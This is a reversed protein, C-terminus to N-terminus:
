KGPESPSVPLTADSQQLLRRIDGIGQKVLIVSCGDVQWDVAYIIQGMDPSAPEREFRPQRGPNDGTPLNSDRCQGRALDGLQLEHIAAQPEGASAPPTPLPADTVGLLNLALPLAILQM